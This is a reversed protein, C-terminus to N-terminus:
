NARRSAPSTKPLVWPAFPTSPITRATAPEISPSGTTAPLVNKVAIQTSGRDEPHDGNSFFADAYAQDPQAAFDWLLVQFNGADDRCVYSNGDANQLETPGLARLFEYAYFTPKRIGQLNLLGFGGHFPGFQPGPEEFIDTFTWLSMSDAAETHRLVHLVFAANQYTDHRPTRRAPPPIGSPSTSNAARSRAPTSSPATRPWKRPSTTLATRLSSTKKGYEDLVAIRATPTRPSSTSPSRGPSWSPSSRTSGPPAATAPGGVRYESSVSKVARASVDYLQFYQDRTGSWFIAFTRSTGSKSTGNSSRPTATVSRATASSPRSSTVGNRSTKPPSIQGKWWFITKKPDSQMASPVFGLEVFPRIKVSLLFDFLKDVYQWNYIPEGHPGEKYVGMDDHFLGHFRIYRFGIDRQVEALQQQWDARLGENARGAGVCNQWVRSTPGKM